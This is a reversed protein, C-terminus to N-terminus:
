DPRDDGVIVAFSQALEWLRWACADYTAQDGGAPDDVDFDLSPEISTVARLKAEFDGDGPAFRVFQALQVAKGAYQAYQARVFRVNHAEAALIVHAWEVDAGDLQHSRHAGYRHEGLDEIQSLAERTRSSMAAGQSVHTGATRIQWGEAGSQDLTKLMYGLMVSRAVNGTCLTVINM